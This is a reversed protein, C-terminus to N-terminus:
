NLRLCTKSRVLSFPSLEETM